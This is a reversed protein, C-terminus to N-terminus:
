DYFMQDSVLIEALQVLEDLTGVFDNRVLDRAMQLQPPSLLTRGERDAWYDFLIELIPLSMGWTGIESFLTEHTWLDEEVYEALLDLFVRSPPQHREV